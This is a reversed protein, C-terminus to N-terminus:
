GPRPMAHMASTMSTTTHVVRRPTTSRRSAFAGSCPSGTLHDSKRPLNVLTGTGPRTKSELAHRLARTPRQPLRKTTQERLTRDVSVRPIVELIGQERGIETRGDGVLDHTLKTRLNGAEANIAGLIQAPHQAFGKPLTERSEVGGKGQRRPGGHHEHHPHVPHALRRRHALERLEQSRVTAANHHARRV